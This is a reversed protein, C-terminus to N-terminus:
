RKGEGNRKRDEERRERCVASMRWPACNDSVRRGCQEILIYQYLRVFVSLSAAKGRLENRKQMFLPLRSHLVQWWLRRFFAYISLYTTYTSMSFFLAISYLLPSHSGSCDAWCLIPFFFLCDCPLALRPPVDTTAPCFYCGCAGTDFFGGM